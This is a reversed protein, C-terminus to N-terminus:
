GGSYDLKRSQHILASFLNEGQCVLKFFCCEQQFVILTEVIVCSPPFTIINESKSMRNMYGKM